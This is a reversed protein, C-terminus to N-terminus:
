QVRCTTESVDDDSTLSGSSQFFGMGTKADPPSLYAQSAVHLLNAIQDLLPPEAQLTLTWQKWNPKFQNPKMTLGCDSVLTQLRETLEILEQRIKEGTALVTDLATFQILLQNAQPRKINFTYSNDDCLQQLKQKFAPLQQAHSSSIPAPAFLRPSYTTPTSPALPPRKKDEKNSNQPLTEVKPLTSPIKKADSALSIPTPTGLKKLADLSLDSDFGTDIEASDVREQHLQECLAPTQVTLSQYHVGVEYGLYLVAHPKERRLVTVKEDSRVIVLSLNLARSLARLHIADAWQKNQSMKDIFTHMSHDVSDSYLALHNLVHEVAIARLTDYAIDVALQQQVQHSVAHYFCNGDKEMSHCGYGWTAAYAVLKQATSSKSETVEMLSRRLMEQEAARQGWHITAQLLRAYEPLPTTSATSHHAQLLLALLEENAKDLNLALDLPTIGKKDPLDTRAGHALVTKVLDTDHAAVARHLVSRGYEDVADVASGQQILLPLMSGLLDLPLDSGLGKRDKEDKPLLPEQKNKDEKPQVFTPPHNKIESLSHDTHEHIKKANAYLAELRQAVVSVAPRGNPDEACCDRILQAFEDPCNEPLYNWPREGAIIWEKIQQASPKAPKGPLDFFPAKGTALEYLVLGLSYVDSAKSYEGGAVIEPALWPLSGVVGEGHLLSRKLTSLGFDSLKAHLEGDREQLLVNLSKLDRHLIGAGHLDYLGIAMDAALRYRQSISLPKTTDRLWHYLDGKPLYEMVVCYPEELCIGLLRVLYDSQIGMVSAEARIEQQRESSFDELLFRKIAVPKLRHTGQYVAGFAGQGIPPEQLTLDRYPITFNLLMQGASDLRALESRNKKSERIPLVFTSRRRLGTTLPLKPTIQFVPPKMAYRSTQGSCSAFTVFPWGRNNWAKRIHTTLPHILEPSSLVFRESRSGSVVTLTQGDFALVPWQQEISKLLIPLYVNQKSFLGQQQQATKLYASILTILDLTQLVEYATRRVDSRKIARM